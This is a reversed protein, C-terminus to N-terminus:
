GRARCRLVGRHLVLALALGLGTVSGWFITRSPWAPWQFTGFPGALTLLAAVSIWGAIFWFFNFRKFVSGKM